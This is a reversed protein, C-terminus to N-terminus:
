EDDDNMIGGGEMLNNEEEEDDNMIRGGEKLNKEEEEDENKRVNFNIIKDRINEEKIVKNYKYANEESFPVFNNNYNNVNQENSNNLCRNPSYFSDTNLISFVTKEEVLNDKFKHIIEEKKRKKKSKNFFINNINEIKYETKKQVLLENKENISNNNTEINNFISNNNQDKNNINNKDKNINNFNYVHYNYKTSYISPSIPLEDDDKNLFYNDFPSLNTLDINTNNHKHKDNKSENLYIDDLNKETYNMLNYYPKRYRQSTQFLNSNSTKHCKKSKNM